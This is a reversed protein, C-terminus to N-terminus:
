IPHAPKSVVVYLSPKSVWHAYLFMMGAVLEFGILDTNTGEFTTNSFHGQWLWHNLVTKLPPTCSHGRVLKGLFSPNRTHVQPAIASLAV